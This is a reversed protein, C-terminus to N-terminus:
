EPHNGSSFEVSSSLNPRHWWGRGNKLRVTEDLDEAIEGRKVPKGEGHRSPSDSPRSPTLPAPLVVAMFRSSPRVVGVDPVTRM